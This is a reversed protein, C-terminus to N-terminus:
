NIKEDTLGGTHYPDVPICAFPYQAYVKTGNLQIYEIVLNCRKELSGKAMMLALQAEHPIAEPIVSGNSAKIILPKNPEILKQDMDSQLYWSISSDNLKSEIQIQSLGAPINGVNAVMFTITSFDSELISVRIKTEEKEFLDKIPPAIWISLWTLVFGSWLTGLGLYRRLFNQYAGCHHCKSANKALEQKCDKCYEM